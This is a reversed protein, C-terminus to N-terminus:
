SRPTYPMVANGGPAVADESALGVLDGFQAECGSPGASDCALGPVRLLLGCEVGLTVVRDFYGVTFILFQHHVDQLVPWFDFHERGLREPPFDGLEVFLGGLLALVGVPLEDVSGDGSTYLVGSWSPPGEEPGSCALVRQFFSYQIGTSIYFVECAHITLILNKVDVVQPWQRISFVRRTAAASSITNPLASVRTEVAIERSTRAPRSRRM